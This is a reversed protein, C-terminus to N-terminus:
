NARNFNNMVFRHRGCFGQQRWQGLQVGQQQCQTAYVNLAQCLIPQYGGGLCLDYVCNEIYTQPAHVSHCAGFHGFVDELIGCHNSDSYLTMEDTTCVACALGTCRVNHCEPDTDSHVKGVIPLTWMQAWSRVVPHVSTMKPICTLTEACVVPPILITMRCLSASTATQMMHLLWVLIQASPWPFVQGISRSPAMASPSHHQQLAEMLRSM